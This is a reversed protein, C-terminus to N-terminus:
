AAVSETRTRPDLAIYALDVALNVFLFITGALIAFGQIVPFDRQHIATNLVQGIGPWAFVPEVVAAGALLEAYTIGLYTLAAGFANRLVHRYVIARESVGKARATRIYDEGMEDLMSARILRIVIGITPIALTVAPLILSTPTSAGQAPVLQLEVAFAIILLYGVAFNPVSSTLTSLVRLAGDVRTARKRAAVVGLPVAVASAILLATTALIVTAGLHSFLMSAVSDGTQYSTGLNGRAADALWSFYQLIISRDLGSAHDFAHLEGPTPPRGLREGLIANGPDGPAIHGIIFSIATIGIWLPILALVRRLIIARVSM